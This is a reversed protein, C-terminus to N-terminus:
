LLLDVQLLRAGKGVHGVKLSPGTTTITTASTTTITTATAIASLTKTSKVTPRKATVTAMAICLDHCRYGSFTSAMVIITPAGDSYVILARRRRQM